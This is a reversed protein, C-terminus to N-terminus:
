IGRQKRVLTQLIVDMNPITTVKSQIPIDGFMEANEVTDLGAQGSLIYKLQQSIDQAKNHAPFFIQRLLNSIDNM